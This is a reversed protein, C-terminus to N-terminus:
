PSSSRGLVQCTCRLGELPVFGSVLTPIHGTTLPAPADFDDILTSECNNGSVGCRLIHERPGFDLAVVLLAVAPDHYFSDDIVHGTPQGMMWCAGFDDDAIGACVALHVVLKVALFRLANPLLEYDSADFTM